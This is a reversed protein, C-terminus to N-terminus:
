MKREYRVESDISPPFREVRLDNGEAKLGM